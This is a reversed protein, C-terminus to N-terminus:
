KLRIFKFEDFLFVKEGDGYENAFLKLYWNIISHIKAAFNESSRCYLFVNVIIFLIILALVRLWIRYLVKAIKKM